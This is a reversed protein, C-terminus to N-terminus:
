KETIVSSSETAITEISSESVPKATTNEAAVDSSDAMSEVKDGDAVFEQGVTILNIEDPLGSVWVGEANERIVQVPHFEVVQENNVIRVGVQGSDDLALVAPSIKYSMVEELPILMQVTSGDRIKTGSTNLTAEIRYTRTQPDAIRGVFSLTGKVVSGGTLQISVAQGVDLSTVERESAQAIALIMSEDILEACVGSREILAGVQAPRSEIFGDFPARMKLREVALESSKLAAQATEKAAKSAAIATASLLNKEKLKLAGDYDISAKEYNARAQDLAALHDDDALQCLVAGKKVRQGREVPTAVIRGGMEAKIAVIRKAQTKGRLTVEIRQPQAVLHRVRVKAMETRTLSKFESDSHQSESHDKLLGSAMWIAISLGIAIAVFYTKKVYILGRGIGENNHSANM